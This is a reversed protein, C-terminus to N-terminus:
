FISLLLKWDDIDIRGDPNLDALPNWADSAPKGNEDTGKMGFVQAFEFMDMINIAGDMNLDGLLEPELYRALHAVTLGCIEEFSPEIPKNKDSPRFGHTGNNACILVCNSGSEYTEKVMQTAQAYPVVDDRDGHILMLPPDDESVYAIPSTSYALDYCEEISSKGFLCEIHALARNRDIQNFMTTFDNSGFWGVVASVGSSYELYGEGELGDNDDATCIINVLHGGASSGWLGIRDPNFGLDKAHVRLYRIALKCDQIQVPMKAEPCLRYNISATAFGLQSLMIMVPSRILGGKDGSKFGGGHIFVALPVDQDRCISPKFFDLKQHKHSGYEIDIHRLLTPREVRHDPPLPGPVIRDGLKWEREAVVSPLVVRGTTFTTSIFLLLLVIVIVPKM